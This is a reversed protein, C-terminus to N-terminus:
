RADTEQEQTGATGGGHRQAPRPGFLATGIRLLTSGARVAAELDGSMGLSLTDLAHGTAALRAQARAARGYESELATVDLGPLPVLMLGRLRLRPLEAVCDALAVLEDEGLGPRGAAGTPRLQLLVDLPPAHFPRQAALRVAQRRDTLTQVCDFLEAISRTKNAQLRGIFHWHPGTGIARIKPAAEQLYNEGFSRLGAAMGEQIAAVPQAKSVALLRISAPDRGCSRAVIDIRARLQGLRDTIGTV